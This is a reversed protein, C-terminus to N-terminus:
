FVCCASDVMIKQIGHRWLRVGEGKGGGKGREWVHGWELEEGERM